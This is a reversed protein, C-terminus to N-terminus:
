VRASRLLRILEEATLNSGVTKGVYGKPLGIAQYQPQPAQPSAIKGFAQQQLRQSPPLPPVEGSDKGMSGLPLAGLAMSGALGALIPGLTENSIGLTTGSPNKTALMPLTLDAKEEPSFLSFKEPGLPNLGFEGAGERAISVGGPLSSPPLISLPKGPTETPGGLWGTVTPGLLQSGALGGLLPLFAGM